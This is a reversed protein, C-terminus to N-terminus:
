RVEIARENREVIDSFGKKSKFSSDDGVRCMAVSKLNTTIAGHYEGFVKHM